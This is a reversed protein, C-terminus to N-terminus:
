PQKSAGGVTESNNGITASEDSARIPTPAAAEDFKIIGIKIKICLEKVTGRVNKTDVFM